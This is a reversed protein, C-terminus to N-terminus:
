LAAEGESSGRMRFMRSLLEGRGERKCVPAEEEVAQPRAGAGESERLRAVVWAGRGPTGRDLEWRVGAVGEERIPLCKEFLSGGKLSFPPPRGYYRRYSREGEGGEFLAEAKGTGVDPGGISRRGGGGAIRCWRREEESIQAVRRERELRREEDDCRRAVARDGTGEARREPDEPGGGESRTLRGVTRHERCVLEHASEPKM